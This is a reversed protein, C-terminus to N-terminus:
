TILFHEELNDLLEPDSHLIYLLVKWQVFRNVPELRKCDNQRKKLFCFVINPNNIWTIRSCRSIIKLSPRLWQCLRQFVLSKKTWKDASFSVVAINIHIISVSSLPWFKSIFAISKSQLCGSTLPTPTIDMCHNRMSFIPSTIEINYESGHLHYIFISSPIVLFM